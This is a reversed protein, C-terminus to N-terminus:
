DKKSDFTKESSVKAFGSAFQNSSSHVFDSQMDKFENKLENIIELLKKEVPEKRQTKGQISDIVGKADTRIDCNKFGLM